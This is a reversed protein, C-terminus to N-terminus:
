KKTVISFSLKNIEDHSAVFDNLDKLTLKEILELEKTSHGIDFGKYYEMFTRNLRQSLTENRLPESGIIFKKAQELEEATAGKKVFESIVEKVLKIAEEQTELKTQLHGSFASHSRNLSTRAYASYALGRKVRVEEMLRSGFGGSGLIFSAVKSKYADKDDVKLNYPSGFYVYAQKTDKEIEVRKADASPAFTALEKSKGVELTSLVEKALKKAEDEKLDGGIVVVARSLVLHEKLFSEIDALAMAKLSEATGIAPNEIPTGKYRLKKLGVQAQYDFDSERKNISAVKLLKIKEFSEKSFNPDSLLEKFYGIGETFKETLSSLEMSFTENGRHTGIHIASEELKTAFGVSGLKKTGENMTSAAFAALGAKDGDEISGSNVFVLEMSAIPLTSDKEYIVPVKVGKVEVESVTASLLVGQLMVLFLLVKIM